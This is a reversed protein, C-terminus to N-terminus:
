VVGCIANGAESIVLWISKIETLCRSFNKNLILLPKVRNHKM